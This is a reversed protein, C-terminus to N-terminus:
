KREHKKEHNEAINKAAEIADVVKQPKLIMVGGVSLIALGILIAALRAVRVVPLEPIDTEDTQRYAMDALRNDARSAPAGAIMRQRFNDLEM